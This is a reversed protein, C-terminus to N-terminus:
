ININQERIYNNLLPNLITYLLYQLEENSLIDYKLIIYNFFWYEFAFILSILSIYHITGYKMNKKVDKWVFFTKINEDITNIAHREEHVVETSNIRNIQTLEISMDNSSDIRALNSKKYNYYKYSIETGIVTFTILLIYVWALIAHHFLKENKLIRNKEAKDSEIKYINTYNQENNELLLILSTNLPNIIYIPNHENNTNMNIIKEFSGKFLSTEMPGVYYFYFLIEILSIGSVHLFINYMINYKINKKYKFM